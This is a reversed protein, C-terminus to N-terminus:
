DQRGEKFDNLSIITLLATLVTTAAFIWISPTYAQMTDTLFFTRLVFAGLIAQLIRKKTVPQLVVWTTLLYGCVGALFWPISAQLIGSIIEPPLIGNLTLFLITLSVISVAVMIGCGYLMMSGVLFYENCPLHLTLKLCKRYMEPAFQSVAGGIGVILPIYKVISILSDNKILFYDWLNKMGALDGVRNLYLAAYCVFGLLVASAIIYYWRTKIWEKYFIAYLM